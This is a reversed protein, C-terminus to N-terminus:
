EVPLAVVSRAWEARARASTPRPLAVKEPKDQPAAKTSPAPLLAFPPLRQEKRKLNARTLLEDASADGAFAEGGGVRMYRIVDDLSVLSTLDEFPETTALPQDYKLPPQYSSVSLANLLKLQTAETEPGVGTGFTPAGMEESSAHDGTPAATGSIFDEAAQALALAEGLPAIELAKALLWRRRGVPDLMLQDDM